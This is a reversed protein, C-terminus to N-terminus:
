PADAPFLAREVEACLAHGILIHMEQIRATVNSPVRIAIDALSALEGGSEGTFSVVRLSRSQARRAAALISASNGSTSFTLLISHPTGYADVQRAFAEDYGYDNAVATLGAIGAGLAIAPLAPRDVLFRGVLEGAIHEADTASGGNGCLLVTGGARLSEIIATAASEVAPAITEIRDLVERHEAVSRSFASM